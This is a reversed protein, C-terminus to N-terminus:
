PLKNLVEEDSAKLAKEMFNKSLDDLVFDKKEKNLAKSNILILGKLNAIAYDKNQKKKLDIFLIIQRYTERLVEWHLDAPDLM